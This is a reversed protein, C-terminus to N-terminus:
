TRNLGGFKELGATSGAKEEKRHRSCLSPTAASNRAASQCEHFATAARPAAVM